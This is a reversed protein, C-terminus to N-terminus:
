VLSVIHAHSIDELHKGSTTTLKFNSFLAIPGFNVLRIDNGNAYKSNDARKIVEFNLDLYSNLLSIFSDEKPINIDIQSNLTIITSTEAPAYCIFDCKLIRRDVEYNENLKFM